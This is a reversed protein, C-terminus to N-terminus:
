QVSLNIYIKSHVFCTCCPLNDQVHIHTGVQAAEDITKPSLGGDVEIDLYPYSQRLHKM